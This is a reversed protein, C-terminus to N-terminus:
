TCGESHFEFLDAAQIAVNITKLNELLMAIYEKHQVKQGDVEYTPRYNATAWALQGAINDRTTTLTTLYDAM